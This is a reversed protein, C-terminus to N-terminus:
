RPRSRRWLSGLVGVSVGWLARWGAVRATVLAHAGCPAPGGGFGGAGDSRCPGVIPVGYPILHFRGVGSVGGEEKVAHGVVM